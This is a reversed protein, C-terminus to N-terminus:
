NDENLGGVVFKKLKQFDEELFNLTKFISENDNYVYDQGEIIIEGKTDDDGETELVWTGDEYLFVSYGEFEFEKLNEVEINIDNDM